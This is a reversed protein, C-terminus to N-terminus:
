EAAKQGLNYIYFIFKNSFGNKRLFEYAKSLIDASNNPIIIEGDNNEITNSKHSQILGKRKDEKPDIFYSPM